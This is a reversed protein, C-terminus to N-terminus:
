RRADLIKIAKEDNKVFREKNQRTEKIKEKKLKNEQNKGKRNKSRKGSQASERTEYLYKRCMFVRVAWCVCAHPTRTNASVTKRPCTDTMSRM